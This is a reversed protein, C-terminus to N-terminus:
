DGNRNESGMWKRIGESEGRSAMQRIEGGRWIDWPQSPVYRLRNPFGWSKEAGEEQCIRPGM